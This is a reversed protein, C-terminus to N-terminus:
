KVDLKLGVQEKNAEEIEEPPRTDDVAVWDDELRGDDAFQPPPSESPIHEELSPLDPFPDDLVITHRIRINQLPRGNADVPTENIKELVEWGEAVEGFITHKEDLSSLEQGMTIYFQSANMNEGM